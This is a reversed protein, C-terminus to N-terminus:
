ILDKYNFIKDPSSYAEDERFRIIFVLRTDTGNNEVNHYINSRIFTMEDIVTSGIPELELDDRAFSVYFNYPPEPRVRNVIEEDQDQVHNNNFWYSISQMTNAIPIVLVWHNAILVGPPVKGNDKKLGDIHRRLSKGKTLFCTSTEVIETVTRSTIFDKLIPFNNFDMQVFYEGEVDHKVLHPNKEFFNLVEQQVGVLCPAKFKQYLLTM